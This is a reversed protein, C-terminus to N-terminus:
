AFAEHTLLDAVTDISPVDPHERLPGTSDPRRVGIVHRLGARLAGQLVAASDDIFLSHEPDFPVTARAASWFSEDEKPAGFEASSYVADFLPRIGAADDKIALTVPHANTLLVLRKGRARARGLFELAGPLWRIREAADRHLQAIDVDLEHSWFEVSYWALTHEHARLRLYLDNWADERSLGSVLAYASPVCERWVYTDYALDLLTGDLDLLLTDVRALAAGDPLPPIMSHSIM